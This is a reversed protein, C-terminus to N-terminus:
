DGPPKRILPVFQVDLSTRRVIGTPTKDIVLLQQIVTGVPIIMRGGVALQDVLPQPVHDSAATVIIGDFPQADPWGAYGDGTRTRVNRFGLERLTREASAALEPIIEITYVERAISALVAAQYGSGTGIELVKGRAASELAQTMFAVLQPQSITQDHGIPLPYDAYAQDRVDAPVFRERPLRGMARLVDEDRIGRARLQEVMRSRAREPDSTQAVDSRLSTCGVLAVQLCLLLCAIAM